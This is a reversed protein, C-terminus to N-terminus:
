GDLGRRKREARYAAEQESSIEGNAFLHELQEFTLSKAPEGEPRKVPPQTPSRRAIEADVHKPLDALPIMDKTAEAAIKERMATAWQQLKPHMQRVATQQIPSLGEADVEGMFYDLATNVDGLARETMMEEKEAVFGDLVSTIAEPSADFINAEALAAKVAGALRAQERQARAQAKQQSEKARESQRRSREAQDLRDQLEQQRRNMEALQEKLAETPDPESTQVEPLDPSEDAAAEEGEAAAVPTEEADETQPEPAPVQDAAEEDADLGEVLDPATAPFGM